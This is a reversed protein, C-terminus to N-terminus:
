SGAPDYNLRPQKNNRKTFKSGADFKLNRFWLTLFKFSTKKSSWVSGQVFKFGVNKLFRRFVKRAQSAAEPFDFSVLCIRKDFYYDSSHMILVKMAKIKGSRTLEYSVRDGEKRLKIFKQERLRKIAQRRIKEEHLRRGIESEYRESRVDKGLVAYCHTRMYQMDEVEEILAILIKAAVTLTKKGARVGYGILKKSKNTMIIIENLHSLSKNSSDKLM